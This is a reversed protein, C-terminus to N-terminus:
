RTSKESKKRRICLVFSIDRLLITFASLIFITTSFSYFAIYLITSINRGAGHKYNLYLVFSTFIVSSVFRLMFSKTFIRRISGMNKQKAYIGYLIAVLFAPFIFILIQYVVGGFGILLLDEISYNLIRNNSFVKIYYNVLNFLVIGVSYVYIINKINFKDHWLSASSGVDRKINMDTKNIRM